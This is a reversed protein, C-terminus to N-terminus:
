RTDVLLLPFRSSPPALEVAPIFQSNVVPVGYKLVGSMKEDNEVPTVEAAEPIAPLLASILMQTRSLCDSAACDADHTSSDPLQSQLRDIAHGLAAVEANKWKCALHRLFSLDYLVQLMDLVDRVDVSRVSAASFKAIMRQPVTMLYSQHHSMGLNHISSSLLYLCEMMPPSPHKCTSGPLTQWITANRQYYSVVDSVVHEEWCSMVREFLANMEKRFSIAVDQDCGVNSVFPSTSLEKAIHAYFILGNMAKNIAHSAMLEESYVKLTSVVKACLAQAEPRYAGNLDVVLRQSSDGDAFMNSLDKQLLAAADELIALAKHLREARGELRQSLTAKYKHFDSDFSSPATGHPPQLVPPSRYLSCLPSFMDENDSELSLAQLFEKEARELVAKWIRTIRTSFIEDLLETLNDIEAVEFGSQAVWKRLSSRVQWVASVVDLSTLWKDFTGRLSELSQDFWSDLKDRLVDQPLSSSVSSSDVFPRYARINAPLLSVYTSSPLSNLIAQANLLLEAPLNSPPSSSPESQISDLVISALSRPSSSTGFVARATYLTRSIAELTTRTSNRVTAATQVSCKKTRESIKRAGPPNVNVPLGNGLNPTDFGEALLTNLTRTRQSLFIKLTETLPRSDLIHLTLLTACTEECTKDYLRLSLTARHIIQTRFHSVTDWQRQILPFQELVDIGHQSWSEDDQADDRILARHVVRALLFLWAVQFYKEREILRWLHEPADLLLKIHASLVQLMQLHSDDKSNQSVHNHVSPVRQSRIATTTEELAEQVRKASTAISVISSSAQLLDRYREGVMIRLDEQKAEADARSQAQKTRVEAITSRAFLEDPEIDVVNDQSKVGVSQSITQPLQSALPSLISAAGSSRLPELPAKSSALSAVSVTSPRRAM